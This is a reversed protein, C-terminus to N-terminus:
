RLFGEVLAALERPRRTPLFHGARPVVALRADPLSDVLLATHEPRVADREGVVVLVPVTVRVLDAPDIQPHETMLATREAVAGLAPVVRSLGRLLREAVVTARLTAATLGAPFLNAGVAVLRGVLGPRRLALEFAVNAGDSFGLVDVDRLGLLDLVVAVDDAMSAISLPGGGRLSRGHARSDLGVLTRGRGLLPVLRDFVHHDEANGHLLVLPRGSGRTVVWLPGVRGGPAALDRLSPRPAGPETM